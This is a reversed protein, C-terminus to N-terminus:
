GTETSRVTVCRRNEVYGADREVADHLAALQAADTPKLTLEVGREVPAMSIKAPIPQVTEPTVTVSVAPSYAAKAALAQAKRRLERVAQEENVTMVLVVSGDKEKVEVDARADKVEIPCLGTDLRVTEQTPPAPPPADDSFIDAVDDGIKAVAAELTDIATAFGGRMEEWEHQNATRARELENKLQTKEQMREFLEQSWEAREDADVYKGEYKVKMSLQAIERELENIRARAMTIFGDREAELENRRYEAMTAPGETSASGCGHALAVGLLVVPLTRKSFM